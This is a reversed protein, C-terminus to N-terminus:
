AKGGYRAMLQAQASHAHARSKSNVGQARLYVGDPQLLWADTGPRPQLHIDALEATETRVPDIM